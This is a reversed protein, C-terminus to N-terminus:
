LGRARQGKADYVAENMVVAATTQGCIIVSLKTGPKAAKPSVYAFALARDVTPSYVVSTTTGVVEGSYLVTEGGHGINIGDHDIALYVCIWPLPSGASSETGSKGVFDPKSLNVFAMMDAEPLTVENTLESAGKFAKEMRMINMAFSGYHIMNEAKGAEWLASYVDLICDRHTHLEWGLEGSYSVRLALTRHGAVDISRASFWRFSENDLACTTTKSLVTRSKPGQISLGCWERSLNAFKVSLNGTNHALHDLLRNEYFAACVLFFSNEATRVVILELEIRGLRNLFYGLAISGPKRPPNNSFIQDLLAEADSGSLQVKAFASIDMLGVSNRVAKVENGVIEDVQNLKFSYHDQQDIGAPAYWRPREHGFVEEFVAGQDKLIPYLPNPNVPRGALRNFHPYPIEHRLCYDERGKITQWSKTAYPGFRRPDMERMSIESSGHVMWRALERTLAPGWGIGIQTGCCCWYNADGPAPGILPNGDPPHSIAGHVTRKIGLESLVPMREMANSLWPLIRDYDPGFLEHEAEWPCGDEWVTNPNEKEYIGILGSKQEMRVYGSVKADDRIVPLDKQLSEFEKVTDTVIYHHTMSVMPLQLSSWEGIQRAYTGGANVVHECLIVGQETSVQWEGNRHRKVDTARCRRIIKAGRSRAGMALATTVSSPDVHGDDPTFLGGIVGDLNYFPHLRRIRNNDILEINADFSRAVSFTYKLWDMEDESYALRISGCGNWSVSQGTEQQLQGSYLAINYDVCKGLNVSSTSRTIQGAAHWTSGSTLEAKELLIVDRIGEKTLHYALGCGMIGGGIIVVQATSSIPTPDSSSKSM